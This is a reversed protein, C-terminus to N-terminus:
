SISIQGCCTTCAARCSTGLQAYNSACSVWAIDQRNIGFVTPRDAHKCVQGKTAEVHELLVLHSCPAAAPIHSLHWFSLQHSTTHRICNPSLWRPVPCCRLGTRVCLRLSAEPWCCCSCCCSCCCCCLMAAQCGQCFYEPSVAGSLLQGSVVTARERGRGRIELASRGSSWLTTLQRCQHHSLRICALAQM